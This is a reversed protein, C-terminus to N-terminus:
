LVVVLGPAVLPAAPDPESQLYLSPQRPAHRDGASRTSYM